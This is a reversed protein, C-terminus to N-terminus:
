PNTEMYILWHNDVKKLKYTELHKKGNGLMSVSVSAHDKEITTDLVMMNTIKYSIGEVESRMEKKNLQKKGSTLVADESYLQLWKNWQSTSINNQLAGLVEYIAKEDANM